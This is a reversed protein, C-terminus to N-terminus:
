LELIPDVRSVSNDDGPRQDESEDEDEEARRNLLLPGQIAYPTAHVLDKDQFRENHGVNQRVNENEGKRDPRNPHQLHSPCLFQGDDGTESEASRLNDIRGALRLVM